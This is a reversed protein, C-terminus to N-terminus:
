LLTYASVFPRTAKGSCHWGYCASLWRYSRPTYLSVVLCLYFCGFECYVVLGLIQTPQFRLSVCEISSTHAMRTHQVVM